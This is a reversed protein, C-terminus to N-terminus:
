LFLQDKQGVNGSQMAHETPGEDAGAHGHGALVNHM